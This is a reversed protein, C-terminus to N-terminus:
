IRGLTNILPSLSTNETAVFELICLDEELFEQECPETPFSSLWKRVTSRTAVQVRGSAKFGSFFVRTKGTSSGSLKRSDIESWEAVALAHRKFHRLIVVVASM